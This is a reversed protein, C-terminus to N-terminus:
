KKCIEVAYFMGFLKNLGTFGLFNEACKVASYFCGPLLSPKSLGGSIIYRFPTHCFMTQLELGPFRQKFTAIDRKFYIYPLAQNSNSLPQGAEIEWKGNVDFPEPHFRTYVFRAFPTNAPEIMVIKGGQVLCRQAEELFLWPHPIHHFVDIMVISKLSSNSFPLREANCVIDVNELALIDSTVVEPFMEKM